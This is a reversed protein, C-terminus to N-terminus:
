VFNFYWAQKPPPTVIDLCLGKLTNNFVQHLNFYSESVLIFDISSSIFDDMENEENEEKDGGESEVDVETVEILDESIYNTYFSTFGNSLILVAFCILLIRQIPKLLNLLAISKNNHLM